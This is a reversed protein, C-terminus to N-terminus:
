NLLRCMSSVPVILTDGEHRPAFQADVFENIAVREIHVARSHVVVPLELLERHTITRVRVAGTEEERAALQLREESAVLTGSESGTDPTPELGGNM